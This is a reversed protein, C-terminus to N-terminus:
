SAEVLDPDQVIELIGDPAQALVSALQQTYTTARVDTQVVLDYSLGIESGFVILDYETARKTDSHVLAIDCSNTEPEVDLIFIIGSDGNNGAAHRAFAGPRIPLEARPSRDLASRLRNAIHEPIRTM